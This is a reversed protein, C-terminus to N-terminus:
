LSQLFQEVVRNFHEPQELNLLHGAKPIIELRANKTANKMAEAESAPILQDDEGHVILIPIDLNKLTQQSDPREKMGLLAGALGDRSAGQMIQRASEVVHPKSEYSHPSLMKPLMADAIAVAGSELALAAMEERKVKGEESDPASRTAALILGKVRDPFLRSFAFAVYGGMSLGCLVVPESIGKAELLAHFDKALLDMTYTERSSQTMGFGRLDPAILYTSGALGELQPAWMEKSLPFGHILLVPQGKGREEYDISIENAQINMM